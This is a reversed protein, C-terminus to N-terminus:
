SACGINSKTLETLSRRDTCSFGILRSALIEKNLVLWSYDCGQCSFPNASVELFGGKQAIRTILNAFPDKKLSTLQNQSFFIAYPDAGTFASSAVESIKNASLNIQLSASHSKFALSMPGLTVINNLAMELRGLSPLNSFANKGIHSIKNQALIIAYLNRNNFADDPITEILNRGLNLTGLNEYVSLDSYPFDKIKNGFLSLTHLSKKSASFANADITTLNNVEVYFQQSKVNGFIDAPLHTLPTGQVWVSRVGGYKFKAQFARKIEDLTRAGMCNLGEGDCTCPALDKPDPCSDDGSVVAGLLAVVCIWYLAM